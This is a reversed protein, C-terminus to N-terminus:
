RRLLDLLMAKTLVGAAFEYEAGLNFAHAAIASRTAADMEGTVAGEYLGETQLTQQIMSVTEQSQPRELILNTLGSASPVVLVFRDIYQIAGLYEGDCAITWGNIAVSTRGISGRRRTDGVDLDSLMPDDLNIVSGDPVESTSWETCQKGDVWELNDGFLVVRGVADDDVTADELGGAVDSARRAAVVTYVGALDQGAAYVQPAPAGTFLLAGALVAALSTLKM